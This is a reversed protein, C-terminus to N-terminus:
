ALIQTLDYCVRYEGFGGWDFVQLYIGACMLSFLSNVWVHVALFMPWSDGALAM